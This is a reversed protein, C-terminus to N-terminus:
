PLRRIRALRSGRTENGADLIATTKPHNQHPQFTDTHANRCRPSSSSEGELPRSSRWEAEEQRCKETVEENIKWGEEDSWTAMTERDEFITSPYPELASKLVLESDYVPRLLSLRPHALTSGWTGYTESSAAIELACKLSGCSIFIDLQELHPFAKIHWGIQLRYFIWLNELSGVHGNGPMAYSGPEDDCWLLNYQLSTARTAQPPQPPVPRPHSGMVPSGTLCFRDFIQLHKNVPCREDYEKKSQKCLLRMNLVRSRMRYRHSMFAEDKEVILLDYIM